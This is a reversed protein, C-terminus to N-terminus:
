ILVQICIYWIKFLVGRCPLTYNSTTDKLVINHQQKCLCVSVTVENKLIYMYLISNVPYFIVRDMLSLQRLIYQSLLDYRMCSASIFHIDICRLFVRAKICSNNDNISFLNAPNPVYIWLYLAQYIFGTKVLDDTQNINSWADNCKRLLVHRVDGHLPCCLIVHHEDEVCDVFSFCVRDNVPLKLYRETENHIPAVWALARGHTTWIATRIFTEVNDESKFTSYLHM